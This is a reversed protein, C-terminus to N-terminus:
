FNRSWPTFVERPLRVLVPGETSKHVISSRSGPKSKRVMRHNVKQLKGQSLLILKEEMLEEVSMQSRDRRGATSSLPTGLTFRVQSASGSRGGDLVPPCPLSRAGAPPMAGIPSYPRDLTSFSQLSQSHQLHPTLTRKELDPVLAYPSGGRRRVSDRERLLERSFHSFDFSNVTASRESASLSDYHSSHGRLISGSKSSTPMPTPSEDCYSVSHPLSHRFMAADREIAVRHFSSEGMSRNGLMSRISPQATIARELTPTLAESDPRGIPSYTGSASRLMGGSQTPMTYESSYGSQRSGSRSSSRRHLRDDHMNWKNPVLNRLPGLSAADRDSDTFLSIPGSELDEYKMGPLPFLIVAVRLLAEIFESFLMNDTDPHGEPGRKVCSMVHLGMTKSFIVNRSELQSRMGIMGFNDLFTLFEKETISGKGNGPGWSRQHLDADSKDWAVLFRELNCYHAFISQLVGRYLKIQALVDDVYFNHYLPDPKARQTNPLLIFRCFVAVRNYDRRHGMFEGPPRPMLVKALRPVAINRFQHYNMALPIDPTKPTGTAEKKLEEVVTPIVEDWACSLMFVEDIQQMPINETEFRVCDSVLGRFGAHGMTPEEKKKDQNKQCYFCYIKHLEKELIECEIGIYDEPEVENLLSSSFSHENLESEGGENDELPVSRSTLPSDRADKPANVPSQRGLMMAAAHSPDLSKMSPTSDLVAEASRLRRRRVSKVTSALIDVVAAPDKHLSSRRPDSVLNRRILSSLKGGGGSAEQNASSGDGLFHSSMRRAVPSRLLAGSSPASPLSHADNSPSETSVPPPKTPGPKKLLKSGIAIVSHVKAWQAVPSLNELARREREEKDKAQKMEENFAKEDEERIQDWREDMEQVLEYDSLLVPKGSKELRSRLLVVSRLQLIALVADLAIRMESAEGHLTTKRELNRLPEYNQTATVMFQALICETPTLMGDNDGDISELAEM